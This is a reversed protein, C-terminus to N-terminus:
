IKYQAYRNSFEHVWEAFDGANPHDIMKRTFAAFDDAEDAPVDYSDGESDTLRTTKPKLARKRTRPMVFDLTKNMFGIADSRDTFEELIKGYPSKVQFKTRLASKTPELLKLNNIQTSAM